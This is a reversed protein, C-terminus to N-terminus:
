TGQLLPLSPVTKQSSLCKTNGTQNAPLKQALKNDPLKQAFMGQLCCIVITGHTAKLTKELQGLYMSAVENQM